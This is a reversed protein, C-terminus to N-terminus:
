LGYCRSGGDGGRRRAVERSRRHGEEAAARARDGAPRAPEEARVAFTPAITSCRRLCSILTLSARCCRSWRRPRSRNLVRSPAPRFAWGEGAQFLVVCRAACHPRLAELVTLPALHDPLRPRLMTETVPESSAFMSAETLRLIDPPDHSRALQGRDVRIRPTLNSEKAVFTQRVRSALHPFHQSRGAM